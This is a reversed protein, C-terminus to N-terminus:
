KGGNKIFNRLNDKESTFSLEDVLNYYDKKDTCKAYFGKFVLLKDDGFAFDKSITKIQNVSLCKDTIWIKVLERKEDSFRKQNLSEQMKKFDAETTECIPEPVPPPMLYVKAYATWENQAATSSFLVIGSQYNQQDFIRSFSNMLIKLRISESSVLYTLKMIHAFSLCNQEYALQIAVFKSEDTPQNFVNQAIAKFIADSVIPGNCGKSGNYNAASPYAFNPFSPEKPATTTPNPNVPVPTVVVTNAQEITKAYDYLRLAFSFQAFADYVEFFNVRDFTHLYAVKCFELRYTDENFLQAITKVQTATLCNANVFQISRDLKLQNTQQIAIQNFNSQFIVASVPNSCNQASAIQLLMFFALFSTFITRMFKTQKRSNLLWALILKKAM